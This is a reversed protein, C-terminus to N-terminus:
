PKNKERLKQSIEDFFCTKNKSELFDRISTRPRTIEASTSTLTARLTIECTKYGSYRLSRTKSLRTFKM